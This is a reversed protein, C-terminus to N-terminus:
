LTTDSENQLACGYDFAMYVVWAVGAALFGAAGTVVGVLLLAIALRKLAATVEPRFPSNAERLVRFVRGGFGLAIVTFVTQILEQVAEKMSAYPLMPMLVETGRWRFLPLAGDMSPGAVPLLIMTVLQFAGFVIYAVFAIKLLVYIVKSLRQIKETPM